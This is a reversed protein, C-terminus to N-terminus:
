AFINVLGSHRNEKKAEHTIERDHGNTLSFRNIEYERQDRLGVSFEGVSVGDKSLSDIIHQINNEIIERAAQDSTNIHVSVLGKELSLNINIKGFNEHEVSVGMRSNGKIVYIVNDLLEQVGPTKTTHLATPSQVSRANEFATNSTNISNINNTETDNGSNHPAKAFNFAHDRTGNEQKFQDSSGSMPRSNLGKSNDDAEPM